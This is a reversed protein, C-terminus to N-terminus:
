IVNATITSNAKSRIKTDQFISDLSAALLNALEVPEGRQASPLIDNGM